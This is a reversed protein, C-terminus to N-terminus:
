AFAVDADFFLEPYSGAPCCGYIKPRRHVHTSPHFSTFVNTHVRIKKNFKQFRTLTSPIKNQWSTNGVTDGKFM